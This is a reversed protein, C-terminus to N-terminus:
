ALVEALFAACSAMSRREADANHHAGIDPVNAGPVAFAHKARGYMHLQWDGGASNLEERLAVVDEIPALPDDAGHLVMVKARIPNAPLGNPKLLGHFSVVGRVDAGSAM